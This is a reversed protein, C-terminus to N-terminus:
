SEWAREKNTVRWTQGDRVVTIRYGSGALKGSIVSAEVVATDTHECKVFDVGLVTGTARMDKRWVCDEDFKAKSVPEVNPTIKRFSALLEPSPDAGRPVSLFYCCSQGHGPVEEAFLKM